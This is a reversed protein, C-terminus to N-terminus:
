IGAEFLDSETAGTLFIEFDRKSLLIVLLVIKKFFLHFFFYIYYLKNEM